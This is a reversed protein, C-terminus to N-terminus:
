NEGSSGEFYEWKRESCCCRNSVQWDSSASVITSLLDNCYFIVITIINYYILYCPLSWYWWYLSWVITRMQPAIYTLILHCHCTVFCFTMIIRFQFNQILKLVTGNLYYMVCSMIMYSIIAIGVFVLHIYAFCIALDLTCSCSHVTIILIHTLFQWASSDSETFYIALQTRIETENSPM